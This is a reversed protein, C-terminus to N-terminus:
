AYVPECTGYIPLDGRLVGTDIQQWSDTGSQNCDGSANPSIVCTRIMAQTREFEVSFFVKFLVQRGFQGPTIQCNITKVFELEGFKIDDYEYQPEGLNEDFNVCNCDTCNLTPSTKVQPYASSVMAATCILMLATIKKM